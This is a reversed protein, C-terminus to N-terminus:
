FGRATERERDQGQHVYSCPAAALRGELLVGTVPEAKVQEISHARLWHRWQPWWPGAFSPAAELWLQPDAPARGTGHVAM